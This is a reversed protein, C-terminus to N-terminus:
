REVAEVQEQTFDNELPAGSSKGESKTRKRTHSEEATGAAASGNKEMAELLGKM